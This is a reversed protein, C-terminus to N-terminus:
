PPWLRHGSLVPPPREGHIVAELAPYVVAPDANPHAEEAIDHPLNLSRPFQYVTVSAGGGSWRRALELAPATKVTHDNANVVFVIDRTLPPTRQAEQRVANGLRFLQAIARTSVGRERDPRAPDPPDNLTVNPFRLSFNMLPAALFSPVRAIELVPAVILVRHVDSRHQAIWAVLTAGASVGVAVVSDGLGNAIDIASDACQQLEEATLGALTRATGNREAHHPLRPVYVNDGSEYLREAFHEYQRPSNTFGHFLVVVRATRGGHTRLVTRGGPAAVRDDASQQRVVRSVADAYDAAPAAHSVIEAAHPPIVAALAILLVAGAVVVAVWTM